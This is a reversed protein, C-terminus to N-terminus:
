CWCICCWHVPDASITLRREAFVILWKTRTTIQLSYDVSVEMAVLKTECIM